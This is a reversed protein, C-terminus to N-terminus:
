PRGEIMAILEDYGIGMATAALAIVFVVVACITFVPRSMATGKVMQIIGFTGYVGCIALLVYNLAM